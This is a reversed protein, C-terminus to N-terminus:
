SVKYRSPPKIAKRFSLISEVAKCARASDPLKGSKWEPGSGRGCLSVEAMQYAAKDSLEYGKLRWHAKFDSLRSRRAVAREASTAPKSPEGCILARTTFDRIDGELMVLLHAIRAGHTEGDRLPDPVNPMGTQEMTRDLRYILLELVRRLYDALGGKGLVDLIYNSAAVPIGVTVAHRLSVYDILKGARTHHALLPAYLSTMLVRLSRGVQAPGPAHSIAVLGDALPQRVREPLRSATM